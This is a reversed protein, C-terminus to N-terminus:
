DFEVGCRYVSVYEPIGAFVYRPNFEMLGGAARDIAWQVAALRGELWLDGPVAELEAWLRLQEMMLERLMFMQGVNEAPVNREANPDGALIAVRSGPHTGSGVTWAVRVGDQEVPSTRWQELLQEAENGTAILRCPAGVLPEDRAAIGLGIDIMLDRPGSWVAPEGNQVGFGLGKKWGLPVFVRYIGESAM